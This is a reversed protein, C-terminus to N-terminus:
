VHIGVNTKCQEAYTRLTNFLLCIQYVPQSFFVFAMYRDSLELEGVM